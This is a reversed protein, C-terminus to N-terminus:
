TIIRKGSRLEEMWVKFADYDDRNQLNKVLRIFEFVTEIIKDIPEGIDIFMADTRQTENAYAKAKDGAVLGLLPIKALESFIFSHYRLGIIGHVKTYANLLKYCTEPYPMLKFKDLRQDHYIDISSWLREGTIVDNAEYDVYHRAHPIHVMKTFIPGVGQDTLVFKIITSIKDLDDRNGATVLGVTYSSYRKSFQPYLPTFEPFTKMEEKQLDNRLLYTYDEQLEATINIRELIAKSNQSRVSSYYSDSFIYKILEKNRFVIDMYDCGIRRISYKMKQKKAVAVMDLVDRVYNDSYFLGGGGVLLENEEGPIEPFGKELIDSYWINKHYTPVSVYIQVIDKNPNEKLIGEFIADDGLNGAGYSGFVYLAM